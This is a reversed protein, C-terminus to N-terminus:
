RAAPVQSKVIIRAPALGDSSAELTIEGGAGPRARIIALAMGNFAPREHSQFSVFSTADGNDTAVIEGPGQISFKIVPNANPVTLGNKDQVRLTVYSLDTGDAAITSRDASLVLKAPLGTTKVVDTAWERGNKYAVVKLEGPEYIVNDWRLRYDFPGRTKRGLSKGNLFLEASDGSTYVHVPTAQGLRNPWNWHPLIHAMPFDPRWRAQYLYYRDKPFGALDVIGFYSSRSRVDGIYPTPEGLYDFGTWVFEGAFGPNRDLAAFESDPICAGDPFDLDYSSIQYGSRNTGFFYEGRSSICSASESAFFPKNENGHYKLLAAYQDIRYNMGQIDVGQRFDSRAAGDWAGASVPRTPDEAHIIDHLEKAPNLTGQEAIENGTSWIVICPHNRFHRVMAQLDRQHWQPYLVSYDNATKGQVWCDFAECMVIFGMKDALDLFEPAPPNHSTRLANCGMAKLIELQRREGSVNFAAGLPGLDHHNCTGQIPVRKGNLHFGDDHTFEITRFGFPQDYIDAIRGDVAVTTRALYRNPTAIDWLKPTAVEASMSIDGSGDAPIENEVTRSAAVQHGVSDNPGLELITTQVSARAAQAAENDVTVAIDAEGSAASIKPTTVFVGWQAVHVPSTKVLWVNRYIGAGPYWRSGLNETDLRVALVNDSGYNLKDTLEVRFGQYGYPWGGISQGNLWIKANAMAGDFDAFIRRGKDDSSVTFHKRYWGIGRWPLKGTNGPLDYRFPGEIGWDHPVDLARWATDCFAPESPSAGAPIPENKIEVGNENFM